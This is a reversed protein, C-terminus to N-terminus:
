ADRDSDEDELITELKNSEKLMILYERAKAFVIAVAFAHWVDQSLDSFDYSGMSQLQKSPFRADYTLFTVISYTIVVGYMTPLDRSYVPEGSTPDIHDFLEERYESALQHLQDTVRGVVSAVPERHAATGIALVPIHNIHSLGADKITWKYYAILERRLADEPRLKCTIRDRARGGLGFLNQLARCATLRFSTPLSIITSNSFFLSFLKGNYENGQHAKIVWESDDESFIESSLTVFEMSWTEPVLPEFGRMNLKNFTWVEDKSWTKMIELDEATPTYIQNEEEPAFLSPKAKEGGVEAATEILTADNDFGSASRSEEEYEVMTTGEVDDQTKPAPQGALWNPLVRAWIKGKVRASQKPSSPPKVVKSGRIGLAKPTKIDVSHKRLWEATRKSPSASERDLRRKAEGLSPSKTPQRQLKPRQPTWYGGIGERLQQFLPM